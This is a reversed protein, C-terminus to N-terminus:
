IAAALVRNRGERKAKLLAQDAIELWQESNQGEVYQAVGLSLSIKADHIFDNNEVRARIDEALRMATALDAGNALIVFEDGGYRFLTDTARIRSQIIETISVLIQDGMLHGLQDNIKKFNDLDLLLLSFNAKRRGFSLISELIKEDLARRNGAGTLGDKTSLHVLEDRQSNRLTSFTYAFVICGLMSMVFKALTFGEMQNFMVPATFVIAFLGIILALNPTVLFFSWLIVPYLFHVEATGQINVIVVVGCVSVLSMCLGPGKVKGTRMIYVVMLLSAAAGMFDIAAIVFDASIFRAIVFPVLAVFSLMCLTLVIREEASKQVVIAILRTFWSM